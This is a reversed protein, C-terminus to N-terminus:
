GKPVSAPATAPAPAADDELLTGLTKRVGESQDLLARSAALTAGADPVPALGPGTLGLADTAAGFRVSNAATAWDGASWAAAAAEGAGLRAYIGAAEHPRGAMSLAAARIRDAEAGALGALQAEAESPRYLALAAKALVLQGEGSLAPDAKVLQGAEEAFGLGVLRDAVELRVPTRAGAEALIAREGFFGQLFATDNAKETM